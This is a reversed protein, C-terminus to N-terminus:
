DTEPQDKMKKLSYIKQLLNDKEKIEADSM